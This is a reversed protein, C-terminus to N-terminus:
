LGFGMKKALLNLLDKTGFDVTLELNITTKGDNNVVEINKIDLDTNIGINEKVKSAILSKIFRRLLGSRIRLEDM